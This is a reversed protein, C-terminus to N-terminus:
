QPLYGQVNGWIWQFAAAALQFFRKAKVPDLALSITQSILAGLLVRTWDKRGFRRSSEKLYEFEQQVEEGQDSSLHQGELLLGKLEDLRSAITAQEEPTFPRNDLHPSSAAHVFQREQNLAEWLDPSSAEKRVEDLWLLCGRVKKQWDDEHKESQVKRSTGPSIIMGAGGFICYYGTPIHTL